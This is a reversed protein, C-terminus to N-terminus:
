RTIELWKNFAGKVFPTMKTRMYMGALQRIIEGQTPYPHVVDAIKSLGLNYTMALSIENMMDGTHRGVLTAGVIKDSGKEVHIKAFGRVVGDTMGRDVEAFSKEFTDIEVGQEAAEEVTLGVQAIEPDTYTSRPLIVESMKQHGGFLTNRIVIRASADAAHTFKLKLCADGVAYVKSNTTQLYDNVKVGHRDYEVGVQELGLKEVNPTRGISVLIEDAVVSHTEGNQEYYLRKRGDETAEAKNFRAGLVLNVGEDLLSEQVVAAADADERNLVHNANHILTVKSGLRHFSQSLECGIPGGGIIALHRPQETLNFITENTHYGVENLGEVDPRTARAGTAIVARKFKLTQGGVEITDPGTFTGDGIFVDVGLDKFRQASDHPSIDSRVKRMREMVQAFDAKVSDQDLHIGFKEANRIEAMVEGSRIIAKSPVCGINLCDGGLLNREILAVKAGLGAAGAATVLGGAGAGIVVLNYRGEPTPNVWDEPHVNNLLKQNYEDRPTVPHTLPVHM